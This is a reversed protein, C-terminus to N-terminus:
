LSYNYTESMVKWDTVTNLNWLKWIGQLSIPAVSMGASWHSYQSPKKWFTVTSTFILEKLTRLFNNYSARQEVLNLWRGSLPIIPPKQFVLWPCIHISTHNYLDTHGSANYFTGKFHLSMRGLITVWVWFRHEANLGDSTCVCLLSCVFVPFVCGSCCHAAM